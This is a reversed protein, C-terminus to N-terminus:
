APLTPNSARGPAANGCEPCPAGHPLGCLDYNCRACRGRRIRRLGRLTAAGGFIAILVTAWFAVNVLFESGRVTLPLVLAPRPTRYPTFRSADIGGEITFVPEYSPACDVTRVIYDCRMSYGLGHLPFGFSGEEIHAVPAHPIPRLASAWRVFAAQYRPEIIAPLGLLTPVPAAPSDGGEIQEVEVCWQLTNSEALVGWAQFARFTGRTGPQPSGELGGAQRVRLSTVWAARVQGTPPSALMGACACVWSVAISLIVAGAALAFIRTLVRRVVNRRSKTM